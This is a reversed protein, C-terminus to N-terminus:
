PGGGAGGAESVLAALEAPLVPEGAIELILKARISSALTEVDEVPIVFAGPGAIVNQRYYAALDGDEFPRILLPLGNIIIGLKSVADRIPTVPPGSINQGDGSIDIVRKDGDYENSEILQAATRLAASISTGRATGISAAEIQQAFLEADEASEILTWPVTQRQAYESAWEFYTVAIRGRYGGTMARVLGEDRFAAAYGRRQILQEELDMSLSADVALVLEVDVEILAAEDQAASVGPLLLATLAGALARPLLKSM